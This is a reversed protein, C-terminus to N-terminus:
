SRKKLCLCMECVTIHLPLVLQTSDAWNINKGRLLFLLKVCYDAAVINTGSAVKGSFDMNLVELLKSTERCTVTITVCVFAKCM